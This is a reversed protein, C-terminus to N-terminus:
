PQPSKTLTCYLAEFCAATHDADETMAREQAASAIRLRMDEDSLVQRIAGALASWDAVPVAVAADPAWEAIHGVATGVTPIGAVAAEFLVYPGAEHRSSLLM